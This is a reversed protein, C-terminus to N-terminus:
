LPPRAACPPSQMAPLASTSAIGFAAPADLLCRGQSDEIMWAARGLSPCALAALLCTSALLLSALPTESVTVLYHNGRFEAARVTGRRAWTAPPAPPHSASDLAAM